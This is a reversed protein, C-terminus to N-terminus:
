SPPLQRNWQSINEVTKAVDEGSLPSIYLNSKEGVALFEGGVMSAAFAKRMMRLRDQPTGPLLVFPRALAGPDRVGIPILKKSEATKAYNIALPVKPL